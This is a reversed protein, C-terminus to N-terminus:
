RIQRRREFEWLHVYVSDTWGHSMIAWRGPAIEFVKAGDHHEFRDDLVHRTWTRGLRDARKYVLLRSRTRYSWFPDHEAAVIEMEGDGDLDAIDLSHPSRVRDIVHMPWPQRRPDPPQELWAILGFGATRTEFDLKEETFIIDPRGDGNVDAVRMRAVNLDKGLLQRPEFRGDGLNELWYPGAALDLLGNGTLDHAVYEEGYLIDALRQKPWPGSRPDDPITFIEPEEGPKPDHYGAIFAARGGPLLPAMLTGHPWQGNGVGIPYEEWQRALPDVPKLWCFDSSLRAYDDEEGPRAKTAIIESRGDGDVDYASVAQYIGPITYREWSPNRYWWGGCVVDLRGDGDVDAAFIDTAAYPKDRDILRHHVQLLSSERDAQRWIQVQPAQWAKGIVEPKGDGDFDLMVAQHTGAGQSLLQRRVRRGRSTLSYLLLRANWNRPAYWGGQAMEAAFICAEGTEVDRWTHLSHLYVLGREIEHEVWGKGAALRNEFWSLRGELYESEAIVIDPTGNGTIDLLATRCMQRFSVAFDTRHWHGSYPGDAPQSYVYPGHVIELRGDGDLDGVSVGEAFFGTDAVHKHWRGDLPSRKYIILGPNACYAANAILETEGDADVDAPVLDHAQGECAADIVFRQWPDSLQKGPKYYTVLWQWQVEASEEAVVAELRGDGDVDMMALGVGFNGTAITGKELTAPRYWLLAGNGGTLLETNGDADIDGVALSGLDQAHDPLADLITLEWPSQQSAM